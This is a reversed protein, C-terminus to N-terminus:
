SGGSVKTCYIFHKAKDLAARKIKFKFIMQQTDTDRDTTGNTDRNTTRSNKKPKPSLLQAQEKKSM